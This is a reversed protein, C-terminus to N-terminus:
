GEKEKRKKEFEIEQLVRGRGGHRLVDVPHAPRSTDAASPAAEEEERRGLGGEDALQGIVVDPASGAWRGVPLWDSALEPSGRHNKINDETMPGAQRLHLQLVDQGAQHHVVGVLPPALVM